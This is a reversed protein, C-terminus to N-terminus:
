EYCRCQCAEFRCADAHKHHEVGHGCAFCHVECYSEDCKECYEERDSM